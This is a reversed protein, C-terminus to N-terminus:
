ATRCPLEVRLETPGGTPSTVTLTGGASHVRDALGALGHGKAVHAGGVGNDAVILHLQAQDVRLQVAVETAQAHKAVNTLAEAVAFYATQEVVPALRGVDPSDLRVPVMARAALAALAAALGRDTLIPPAIGRSLSRLEDLADRTQSLAEGITQQAAQPDSTLQQQARGLDVALRVLRQQPGDHIDRELRRLATAEASVAAATQAQATAKQESLGRVEHSLGSVQQRLDAVSCLLTRALAAEAVAWLRAMLPLTLLCFVGVATYFWIRTSTANGLGILEPLDHQDSGRPLWQQWFWYTLGGVASAWWSVVFSFGAVSVPFRVIAHLVDLWSQGDGLPVFMRKFFGQDSSTQRYAVPTPRQRLVPGLRVRELVALGRAVFVTAVLVPLGIVTILLGAGLSLGTIIITFAAISLPFGVLVYATDIGLQRLMRSFAGGQGRYDATLAGPTATATPSTATTM